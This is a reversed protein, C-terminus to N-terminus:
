GQADERGIRGFTSSLDALTSEIENALLARVRQEDTAAALQAALQDPLRELRTRLTTAADVVAARVDTALILTGRRQAVDMEAQLAQAREKREKWDTMEETLVAPTARAPAGTTSRILELTARVRIRGDEALVLRGQNGLKTVYSKAVGLHRAFESRTMLDEESQTASTTM